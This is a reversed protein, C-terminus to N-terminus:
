LGLQNLMYKAPDIIPKDTLKKLEEIIYPFHTCGLILAEMDSKNFWDMLEVIGLREVIEAPEEKNEIAVVLGHYGFTSSILDPNSKLIIEEIKATSQANAAMVFIKNYDKAYEFYADFPTVIQMKLEEAIEVMDVAASLSNCYVMAKENGLAKESSLIEVVREKLGEGIGYQLLRQEDPTNATPKYIGVGGNAEILDVGMQTDVPAGALVVVKM